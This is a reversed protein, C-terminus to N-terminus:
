DLLTYPTYDFSDKEKWCNALTEKIFAIAALYFEKYEDFTKFTIYENEGAKITNSEAHLDYLSKYNMQNEQSLWVTKDKWTFGSLIKEQVNLNFFNEVTSKIESLTPKHDFVEEEWKVVTKKENGQQNEEEERKNWRIVWKDTFPNICEIYSNFAGQTTRM